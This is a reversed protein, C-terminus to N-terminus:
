AIHAYVSFFILVIHSSQLLIKIVIFYLLFLTSSNSNM